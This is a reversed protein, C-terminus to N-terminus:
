EYVATQASFAPFGVHMCAFTIEHEGTVTYVDPLTADPAHMGAGAGAGPGAVDAVSIARKSLSHSPRATM